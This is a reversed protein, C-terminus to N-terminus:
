KETDGNFYKKFIILNDQLNSNINYSSDQLREAFIKPYKNIMTTENAFQNLFPRISKAFTLDSTTPKNSYDISNKILVQEFNPKMPLIQLEEVVEPKQLHAKDFCFERGQFSKTYNLIKGYTETDNCQLGIIM